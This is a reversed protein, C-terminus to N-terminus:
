TPKSYDLNFHRTLVIGGSYAFDFDLDFFLTLFHIQICILYLNDWPLNFILLDVNIMGVDYIGMHLLSPACQITLFIDNNNSNLM